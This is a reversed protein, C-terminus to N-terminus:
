SLEAAATEDPNEDFIELVKGKFVRRPQSPDLVLEVQEHLFFRGGILDALKQVLTDQGGTNWLHITNVLIPEMADPVSQALKAFQKDESQKAELFTLESKNTVCCSWQRQIFLM